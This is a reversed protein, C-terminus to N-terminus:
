DLQKVKEKKLRTNELYYCALPFFVIARSGLGNNEALFM